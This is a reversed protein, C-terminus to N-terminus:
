AQAIELPVPDICRLPKCKEIRERRVIEIDRADVPLPRPPRFQSRKVQYAFADFDGIRARGSVQDLRDSRNLWSVQLCLRGGKLEHHGAVRRPTKSIQVSQQFAFTRAVSSRRACM